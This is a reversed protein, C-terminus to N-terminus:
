RAVFRVLLAVLAAQSHVGTKEYIQMLHSRVTGRGIRLEAAVRDLDFGGAIRTAVDCERPTLNFAERLAAADIAIPADMETIFIAVHPMGAGPVAAGLRWIPLVTLLLPARHSPRTLRLQQAAITADAAAAAIAARLRQTAVPTAAAIPAAAIDLGDAEAAIRAARANLFTPRGTDDTLIVGDDLRDLVTALADCREDTLHLRRRLQLGTSLAPLVAQLVAADQAAFDGKRQPRCIAIFASMGALEDRACVCYFGNAPRLVENYIETQEFDRDPMGYPSTLAQGSPMAAIFPAMWRATEPLQFREFETTGMCASTGLVPQGSASERVFLVAHEARLHAVLAELAPVWAGPMTTAEFLGDAVARLRTAGRM